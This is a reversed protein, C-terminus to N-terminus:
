LLEALDEPARPEECLRSLTRVAVDARGQATRLRSLGPEPQVGLANARRYADEAAPYSGLLRHLEGVQYAALGAAWGDLLQQAAAAEGLARAWDGGLTSMEARHVLCTGRYAVLDPRASCWRDLTATWSRARVVDRLRVCAAVALCYSMGVVAPSTEDTSVALMVEDFVRFADAEQGRFLHAFGITLRNLVVADPDRSALGLREGQHATAMAEDIRQEALLAHARYALVWAAEAGDLGHQEALQEARAAWARSRVEERANELTLSAWAASRVASRPDGAALFYSYAGAYAAVSQEDAGVLYAAQGLLLLGEGPLAKVADAAALLEVCRRWRCAAFLASADALLQGDDAEALLPGDGDPRAM